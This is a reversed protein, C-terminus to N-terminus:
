TPASSPKRAIATAATTIKWKAGDLKGPPKRPTSTNKTTEPNRIARKSTPSTAVVPDNERGRKQARRARRRSGATATIVTITRTMEATFSVGTSSCSM